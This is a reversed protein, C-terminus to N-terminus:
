MHAQLAGLADDLAHTIIGDGPARRALVVIYYGSALAGLWLVGDDVVVRM